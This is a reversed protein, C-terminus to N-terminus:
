VSSTIPAASLSNVNRDARQRRHKHVFFWTFDLLWYYYINTIENTDSSERMCFCSRVRVFGFPSLRSKTKRIRGRPASLPQQLAAWIYGRKM